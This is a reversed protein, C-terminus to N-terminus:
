FHDQKKYSYSYLLVVCLHVKLESITVLLVMLAFITTKYLQLVICFVCM